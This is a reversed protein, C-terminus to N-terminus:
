VSTYYVLHHPSLKLRRLFVRLVCLALSFLDKQKIRFAVIVCVLPLFELAEFKKKKLAKHKSCVEGRATGIYLKPCGKPETQGIQM